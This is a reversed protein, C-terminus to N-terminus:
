RVRLIRGEQDVPEVALGRSAFVESVVARGRELLGEGEGASGDIERLEMTQAGCADHLRLELPLGEARLAERAAVLDFTTAVKM